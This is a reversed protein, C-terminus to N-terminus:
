NTPQRLVLGQVHMASILSKGHWCVHWASLKKVETTFETGTCLLWFSCYVTLCTYKDLNMFSIAAFAVISMEQDTSSFDKQHSIICTNKSGGFRPEVQGVSGKAEILWCAERISCIEDEEYLCPGLRVFDKMDSCVICSAGSLVLMVTGSIGLRRLHFL